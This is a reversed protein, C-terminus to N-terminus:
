QIIWFQADDQSFPAICVGGDDTATLAKSTDEFSRIVVYENAHEFVWQQRSLGAYDLQVVGKMDDKVTVAKRSFVSIIWGIQEDVFFLQNEGGHSRFCIIKENNDLSAHKVDLVKQDKKSVIFHAQSAM